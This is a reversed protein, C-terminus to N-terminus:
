WGCGPVRMGSLFQSKASHLAQAYLCDKEDFRNVAANLKNEFIEKTSKHPWYRHEELITARAIPQSKAHTRVYEPNLLSIVTNYQFLDSKMFDYYNRDIGLVRAILKREEPKHEQLHKLNVQLTCYREGKDEFSLKTLDIVTTDEAQKLKRFDYASVLFNERLTLQAFAGNWNPVEKMHKLVPNHKGRTIRLTPVRGYDMSYVMGDAVNMRVSAECSLNCRSNQKVKEDLIEDAHLITDSFCLDYAEDLSGTIQHTGAYGFDSVYAKIHTM